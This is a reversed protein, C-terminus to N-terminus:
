PTQARELGSVGYKEFLGDIFARQSDYAARENVRAYVGPNTAADRLFDAYLDKLGEGDPTRDNLELVYVVDGDMNAAAAAEGPTLTGFAADLFEDSADGVGPVRAPAPVPPLFQGFQGGQRTLRLRPFPGTPEVELEAPADEDVDEGEAVAPAPGAAAQGAVADALTVGEQSAEAALEEARELALKAAERRKYAAVVAERVGPDTLEQEAAYRQDTKWVAFGDGTDPRSGTRVPQYLQGDFNGFLPAVLLDRRSFPDADFGAEALMVPYTDDGIDSVGVFDTSVYELDNAEAYEALKGAIVQRAEERATEIEEPSLTVEPNEPDPVEAWVDGGLVYMFEAAAGIKEALAADVREQKLRERIGARRAEDLPFFEPPPERDPTPPAADGVAPEDAPPADAAPADATPEAPAPAAPAADGEGAPVPATLPAPPGDDEPAMEPRDAEPADAAPPPDAPEEAPPTDAAPDDGEAEEQKERRM